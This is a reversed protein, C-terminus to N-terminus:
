RLTLAQMEDDHPMLNLQNRSHVGNENVESSEFVTDGRRPVCMIGWEEENAEGNRM